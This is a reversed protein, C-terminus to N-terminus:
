FFRCANKVGYLKEILLNLINETLPIDCRKIEKQEFIKRYLKEVPNFPFPVNKLQKASEKIMEELVSSEEPSFKTSVKLGLLFLPHPLEGKKTISKFIERNKKNRTKLPLLADALVEEIENLFIIAFRKAESPLSKKFRPTPILNGAKFHKIHAFEHALVGKINRRVLPSSANVFTRTKLKRKETQFETLAVVRPSSMTFKKLKRAAKRFARKRLVYIEDAVEGIIGKAKEIAGIIKEIKREFKPDVTLKVDSVRVTIYEAIKM